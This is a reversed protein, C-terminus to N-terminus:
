DWPRDCATCFDVDSGWLTMGGSNTSKITDAHGCHVCERSVSKPGKPVRNGLFERIEVSREQAIARLLTVLEAATLKRTMEIISELQQAASFRM